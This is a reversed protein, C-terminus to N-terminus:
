DTETKEIIEGELVKMAIGGLKLLEPTPIQKININVDHEAEKVKGWLREILLTRALHDGSAANQVINAFILNFMSQKPDAIEQKLTAHNMNGYKQMADIFMQYTMEKFAKIQPDTKGVGNPNGSQGKKWQHPKLQKVDKKGAM